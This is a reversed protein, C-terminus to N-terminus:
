QDLLIRKPSWNTLAGVEGDALLNAFRGTFTAHGISGRPDCKPYLVGDVTCGEVFFSAFARIPMFGNGTADFHDVVILTILRPSHCIERYFASATGTTGSVLEMTGDFDDIGDGGAIDCKGETSFLTNFAAMIVNPQAGTKSKVCWNVPPISAGACQAATYGQPAIHCLTNAGGAKIENTLQNAGGGAKWCGLTPPGPLPSSGDLALWSAEGSVKDFVSLDCRKGYLPEPLGDGNADPSWCLSRSNPCNPDLPDACIPLGVPMLGKIEVISGACARAHAGIEPAITLGFVGGFFTHSEHKINLAVSDSRPGNFCSNDVAINNGIISANKAEDNIAAYGATQTKAAADGLTPALLEYAGALASLEADTQAGRRESQWLSADVAVAGVVTTVPLVILMFVLVMQGRDARLRRVFQRVRSAISSM